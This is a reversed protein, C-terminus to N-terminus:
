SRVIAKNELLGLVTGIWEVDQFSLHGAPPPRAANGNCTSTLGNSKTVYVLPPHLILIVSQRSMVATPKPLCHPIQSESKGQQNHKTQCVNIHTQMGDAHAM